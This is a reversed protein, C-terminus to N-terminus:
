NELRKFKNEKVVYEFMEPRRRYEGAIDRIFFLTNVNIARNFSDILIPPTLACKVFNIIGGNVDIMKVKELKTSKLNRLKSYALWASPYRSDISIIYIPIGINLIKQIQVFKFKLLGLQQKILDGTM